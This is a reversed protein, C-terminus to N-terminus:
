SIQPEPIDFIRDVMDCFRECYWNPEVASIDRYTLMKGAAKEKGFVNRIAFIFRKTWQELKKSFDWTQLM